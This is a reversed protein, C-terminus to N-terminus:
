KFIISAYGVANDYDNVIDGSTCYHSLYASGKKLKCLDMITAIPNSGCITKDKTFNLFAETDLKKILKIAEADIKYMEEKKKTLFPIYGYNPGYHTFDSSIVVYISKKQEAILSALEKNYSGITIPLIKLHPLYTKNVYQLFPLQVEISHENEHSKDNEKVVGSDLFIKALEKDTKVTGFPTDFDQKTLYSDKFGYHSPGIIIFTDPFRAEAIEKYAWAACQGSFYYGAHPAIVGIINGKRTKIPLDGPGQKLFFCDKIQKELKQFDDEYFQGAVVARRM